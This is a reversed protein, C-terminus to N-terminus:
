SFVDMGEIEDLKTSIAKNVDRIFRLDQTHLAQEFETILHNIFERQDGTFNEYVRALRALLAANEDQDRPNIKLGALEKFRADIQDRSLIGPNGEIVLRHQKKTSLVTAIVELVGSTDYTYRIEVSEFEKKNHPIPVLLSGLRINDKVFPSEGQFVPVDIQKQGLSVPSVVNSRSVPIITNREILPSFHGPEYANEGVQIAVEYGLTFPAVDTMVVDELAEHRQVLGAQVAAGLAVVHDPDISHEPFKKILRTILARVTPMRTAGGVLIVRDVSDLALKSDSLARQIPLRLRRLLPDSLEEFQEQNLKVTRLEGNHNFDASVDRSSSLKRKVEDALWRLRARASQDLEDINIELRDAVHKTLLDTFDEGGLFADGASARVEMVGSFLELISVDFTGGGLDIVLFKADANRDELGYALSAATPENVLRTVTLGALDAAAITAKRQLDNFYAPVSVVVDTISQGLYAEADAKLSRLVLASLEEARYKKNGIKAEHDTGMHRKFRATTHDPHTVLREKAAQGILLAGDDAFGVASPTLVGGLANPILEPESDGFVAILSNTTGLDIGIPPHNSM